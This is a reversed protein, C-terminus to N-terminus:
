WILSYRAGIIIFRVLLYQQTIHIAHLGLCFLLYLKNDASNLITPKMTNYFFSLTSLQPFYFMFKHAMLSQHQPVVQMKNNQLTFLRTIM